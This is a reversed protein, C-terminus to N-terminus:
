YAYGVNQELIIKRYVQQLAEEAQSGTEVSLYAAFLVSARWRDARTWSVHCHETALLQIPGSPTMIQEQSLFNPEM